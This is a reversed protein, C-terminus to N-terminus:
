TEPLMFNDHLKSVGGMSYPCNLRGKKIQKEKWRHFFIWYLVETNYLTNTYCIYCCNKKVLDAVLYIKKLNM